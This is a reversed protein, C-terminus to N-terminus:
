QGIKTDRGSQFGASGGKVVQKQVHRREYVRGGWFGVGLSVAISIVELVIHWNIPM